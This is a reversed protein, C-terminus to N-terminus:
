GDDVVGILARVEEAVASESAGDLRLVHRVAEIFRRSATRAMIALRSESQGFEIALDKYSRGNVSHEVFIRWHEAINQESSLRSAEELATRVVGIAFARDLAAAQDIEPATLEADEDLPQEAERDRRRERLYFCLGNMLWRRLRMKAPDWRELYDARGLRSAFFGHVTEKADGRGRLVARAYIELPAAYVEMIHRHVERVGDPGGALHDFLWSRQTEPFHDSAM